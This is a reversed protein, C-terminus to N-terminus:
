NIQQQESKLEVIFNINQPFILFFNWESKDERTYVVYYIKILKILAYWNTYKKIFVYILIKWLKKHNVFSTGSSMLNRDKKMTSRKGNNLVGDIMRM